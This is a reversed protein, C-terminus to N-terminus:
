RVLAAFAIPAVGNRIASQPNRISLPSASPNRFAFQPNRFASHPIRISLQNQQGHDM